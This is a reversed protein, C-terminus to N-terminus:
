LKYKFAETNGLGLSLAVLGEFGYADVTHSEGFPFGCNCRNDILNDM